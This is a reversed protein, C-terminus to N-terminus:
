HRTGLAISCGSITLNLLRVERIVSKVVGVYIRIAQGTSLSLNVKLIKDGALDRGGVEAVTSDVLETSRTTM